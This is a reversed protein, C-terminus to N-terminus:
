RGKRHHDLMEVIKIHQQHQRIGTHLDTSGPESSAVRRRRGISGSVGTHVTGARGAPVGTAPGSMARM